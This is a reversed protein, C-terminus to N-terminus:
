VLFLSSVGSDLLLTMKKYLELFELGTETRQYTVKGACAGMRILDSSRMLNLYQGSQATSMSCHSMINAKGAPIRLQRLIEAMIQLRGRNGDSAKRVNLMSYCRESFLLGARLCIINCYTLLV